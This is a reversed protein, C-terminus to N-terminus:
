GRWLLAHRAVSRAFDAMRGPLETRWEPEGSAYADLFRMADTSNCALGSRRKVASRLLRLIEEWRGEEGVDRLLRASDFDLIGATEGDWLLNHIHLDGHLVGDDHLRRVARGAAALAPRRGAAPGALVKALNRGPLDWTGMRMRFLPGVRRVELFAPEPVRVRGRALHDLVLMEWLGRRFNLYLDRFLPGTLGGHRYRKVWLRRGDLDVVQVPGRMVGEEVAKGEDPAPVIDPELGPALLVEVGPEPHSWRFGTPPRPEVPM